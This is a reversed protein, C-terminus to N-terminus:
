FPLPDEESLPELSDGPVVLPKNEWSMGFGVVEAIVGETLHDCEYGKYYISACVFDPYEQRNDKNAIELATDMDVDHEVQLM